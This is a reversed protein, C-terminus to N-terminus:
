KEERREKEIKELLREAKNKMDSDKSKKTLAIKITREADEIRGNAFYMNALREYFLAREPQESVASEWFSIANRYKESQILNLPIYFLILIVFIATKIKDNFKSFIEAILIFFGIAPLYIRCDWYQFGDFSMTRVPLAPLLFAFFWILGFYYLKKNITKLYFPILVIVAFFIIGSITVFYTYDPLVKLNVPLILKSLFEFLMRLNRLSDGIYISDVTVKSAILIRILYYLFVPSIIVLLKIFSKINLHFNGTRIFFYFIAMVPLVIGIEKSLVALMSFISYFIFFHPKESELFKIFVIFGAVSFMGALLDGRGAIWGVANIFVPHVAFLLAIFLANLKEFKMKQLLVFLLCSTITHIIFNSLHFYFPNDKGLSIDFLFSISTVPRYYHGGLFNNSFANLFEQIGPKLENFLRNYEIISIDDLYVLGFALSKLYVVLCAFIIILYSYKLLNKKM